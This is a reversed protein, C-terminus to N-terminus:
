CAHQFPNEAVHSSCVKCYILMNQYLLYKSNKCNRTCHMDVEDIKGGKVELRVGNPNASPRGRGIISMKLFFFFVNWGGLDM